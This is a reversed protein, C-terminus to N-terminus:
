LKQSIILVMIEFPAMLFDILHAVLLPLWLLADEFPTNYYRSDCRVSIIRPEGSQRRDLVFWNSESGVGYVDASCKTAILAAYANDSIFASNYIIKVPIAPLAIKLAPM